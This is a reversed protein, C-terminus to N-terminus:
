WPWCFIFGIVSVPWASSAVRSRHLLGVGDMWCAVRHFSGGVNQEAIADHLHLGLPHYAKGISPVSVIWLSLVFFSTQKM